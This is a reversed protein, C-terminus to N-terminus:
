EPECTLDITMKIQNQQIRKRENNFKYPAFCLLCFFIKRFVNGMGTLIFKRENKM